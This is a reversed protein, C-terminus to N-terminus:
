RGALAEVYLRWYRRAPERWSWDRDMGRQRLAHWSEPDHRYLSAARDLAWALGDVTAHEFAFGTGQGRRLAEDGPDHVTDRLGGTARVVPVAGYRMAQLQVLGCPEFRSPVLLVDSGAVIRHALAGDFGISAVFHESFRESLWRLREELDPEGSGLVVMRAGLAALRPVLEAVLDMGKQDALRGIVGVLPEGLGPRLGFEAALAARCRDKPGLVDRHFTAAIHPDAAPDWGATDLGNLVGELRGVRHRLFGDLGFGGEPTTIEWAFTPSVTTVLDAFACGGKLLNLDGHHEFADLHLDEDGIDISRAVEAGFRGQYAVNHLTLVSASRDYLGTLQRRMGYPVLAAQWDHAHVVEPTRGLLAPAVELAARSLWAFRWPNDDHPRLDPGDYLGPRDFVGPYELFAWTVGGHDTRLVRCRDWGVRLGSDALGVGLREAGAPVSPYLPSIVVVRGRGDAALARPLASAVDALGGTKSFPTVESAM